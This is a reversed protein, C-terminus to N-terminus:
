LSALHLLEAEGLDSVFVCAIGEDIWLASNYGKEKSLYFIKNNISVKKAKPFKLGKADFMFVSLCHGNEGYMLYATRKDKLSCIRAGSLNIGQSSSLDPAMVKFDLKAQLWRSVELPKNSVIDMSLNGQLFQIHEKVTENFVPFPRNLLSFLIFMLVTTAIGILAPRRLIPSVFQNIRNEQLKEMRSLIAEKLEYPAKEEPISRKILSSWNKEQELELSCLPCIALHEKVLLSTQNDLEGDTFLYLFEKIKQCNMM